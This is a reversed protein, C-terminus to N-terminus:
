EQERIENVSDEVERNQQACTGCIGDGEPCRNGCQGCREGDRSDISAQAKELACDLSDYYGLTLGDVHTMFTQVGKLFYSYIGIQHGRYANVHDYRVLRGNLKFAYKMKAKEIETTRQPEGSAIWADINEETIDEGLIDLVIVAKRAEREQRENM